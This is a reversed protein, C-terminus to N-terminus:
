CSNEIIYLKNNKHDYIKIKKHQLSSINGSPLCIMCNIYGCFNIKRTSLKRVATYYHM